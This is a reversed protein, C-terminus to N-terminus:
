KGCASTLQFHPCFLSKPGRGRQVHPFAGCASPVIPDRYFDSGSIWARRPIQRSLRLFPERRSNESAARSFRSLARCAAASQGTPTASQGTPTFPVRKSRHLLSRAQVLVPSQRAKSLFSEHPPTGKKAPSIAAHFRRGRRCKLPTSAFGDAANFRASPLPVLLVAISDRGSFFASVLRLSSGQSQLYARRLRRLPRRSATLSIPCAPAGSPKQRQLPRNM